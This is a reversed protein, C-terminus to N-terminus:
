FAPQTNVAIRNVIAARDDINLCGKVQEVVFKLQSINAKTIRNRGDSESGDGVFDGDQNDATTSEFDRVVNLLFQDCTRDLKAMMDSIVRANENCFKVSQPNTIDM